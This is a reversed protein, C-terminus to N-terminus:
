PKKTKKAEKKELEEEMKELAGYYEPHEVLHDKAIERATEPDDTHEMEVKMGQKLAEPDFDSDPRGDALGGQVKEGNMWSVNTALTYARQGPKDYKPTRILNYNGKLKEGRFELISIGDPRIRKWAVEGADLVWMWGRGYEDAFRAAGHPHTGHLESYKLLDDMRHEPEPRWAGGKKLKTDRDELVLFARRDGTRPVQTFISIVNGPDMPDRLRLDQHLGTAFHQHLVFLNKGGRALKRVETLVKKLKRGKLHERENPFSINGIGGLEEVIRERADKNSEGPLKERSARDLVDQHSTKRKRVADLSGGGPIKSTGKRVTTKRM